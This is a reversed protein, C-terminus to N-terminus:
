KQNQYFLYVLGSVVATVVVPELVQRMSTTQPQEIPFPYEHGELMPRAWGPFSDIRVREASGVGRVERGPQALWSAWVRVSALRGYRRPGVLWSRKAWPYSVGCDVVRFVLVEGRPPLTVEFDAAESSASQAEEQQAAQERRARPGLRAPPEETLTQDADSDSDAPERDEDSAEDDSDEEDEADEDAEEGEEGEAEEDDASPEEEGGGFLTAGGAHQPPTDEAAPTPPKQAAAAGGAPAKAYAPTVVRCGQEILSRELVRAVLWNAPHASEAVLHLTTGPALDLEALIEDAVEASLQEILTLHDTREEARVPIATALMCLMLGLGLAPMRATRRPAPIPRGM